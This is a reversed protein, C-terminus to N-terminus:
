HHHSFNAKNNKPIPSNILEMNKLMKVERGINLRAKKEYLNRFVPVQFIYKEDLIKKIFSLRGKIFKNDSLYSYEKRIKKLYENYIQPKAGLIMLDIDLFLQTDFDNDPNREFHKATKLILDTSKDLVSTPIQIKKLLKCALEASKQENDTNRAVYIIDHFWIAFLVSDAEQLKNFFPKVAHLMEDIHALTHYYRFPESYYMDIKVFIQKNKEQNKSYKSALQLWNTLLNSNTIM